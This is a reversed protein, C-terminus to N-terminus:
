ISVKNSITEKSTLAPAVNTSIVYAHRDDNYEGLADITRQLQEIAHKIDTGKLEVFHEAHEDESTLLKDCRMGETIACGDVQVARYVNRNPNKFYLTRKNEEFRITPHSVNTVCLNPVNRM